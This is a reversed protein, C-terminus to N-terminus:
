ESVPQPARPRMLIVLATFDYAAHAVIPALLNGDAVLWLWGLYCGLMAALVFYTKSLPHAIGFVLGGILVGAL